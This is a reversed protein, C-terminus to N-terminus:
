FGERCMGDGGAVQEPEKMDMDMESLEELYAEAEEETIEYGAGRVLEALEEANRCAAARRIMEPPLTNKDIKM